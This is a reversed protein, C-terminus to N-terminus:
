EKWWLITVKTGQGLTSEIEFEHALRRAGPLGLGMGDGTSFGDELAQDIDAIGPGHDEVAIRLGERAGDDVSELSMVGGGAHLVANRALESAATVLKTCALLSLGLAGARETVAGLAVAVDTDSTLGFRAVHTGEM